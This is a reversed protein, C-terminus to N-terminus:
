AEFWALLAAALDVAPTRPDSVHPGDEIVRKLVDILAQDAPSHETPTPM